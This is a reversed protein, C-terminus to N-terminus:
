GENLNALGSLFQVIRCEAWYRDRDPGCRRGAIFGAHGGCSTVLLRLFPNQDVGSKSYCEFPILPDDMSQIMLTPVRINRLLPAASALRYYNEAKGFGFHPATVIDDFEWISQLRRVKELDVIGPFLVAKREMRAVLRRLFYKEYFRNRREGIARAGSALDIPTSMVAAGQLFQGGREGSEGLFKLLMNGGLSVGAAYIAPIHLVEQLHRVIALVDQSLAACYLTPTLHETGGCNRMNIRIAHFGAAYAKKSTGVIHHSRASGELGHLLILAPSAPKPGPQWSAEAIMQGADGLEITLQEWSRWGYDWRRPKRASVITQLHANRLWLPPHFDPFSPEPTV